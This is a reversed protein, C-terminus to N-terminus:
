GPAVGQVPLFRKSTRRPPEGTSRFVASPAASKFTGAAISAVPTLFGPDYKAHGRTRFEQKPQQSSWPSSPALMSSRAEPRRQRGLNSSGGPGNPTLCSANLARSLNTAAPWSLGGNRWRWTEAKVQPDSSRAAIAEAEAAHDMCNRIHDGLRQLM